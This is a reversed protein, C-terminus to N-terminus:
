LCDKHLLKWIASHKGSFYLDALPNLTLRRINLFGYM